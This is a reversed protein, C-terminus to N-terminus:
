ELMQSLIQSKERTQSGIKIMKHRNYVTDLRFIRVQSINIECFQMLYSKKKVRIIELARINKNGVTHTPLVNALAALSNKLSIVHYHFRLM